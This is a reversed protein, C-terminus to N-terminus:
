RRADAALAALGSCAPTPRRPQLAFTSGLHRRRHIPLPRRPPQACSTSQFPRRGALYRAHLRPPFPRWSFSRYLRGRRCCSSHAPIRPGPSLAALPRLIGAPPSTTAPHQSRRSRPSLAPAVLDPTSTVHSAAARGSSAPRSSAMLSARSSRRSSTFLLAGSRRRGVDPM